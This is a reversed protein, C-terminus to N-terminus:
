GIILTGSGSSSLVVVRIYKRGRRNMLLAMFSNKEIQKWSFRLLGLLVPSDLLDEAIFCVKEFDGTNTLSKQGTFFFIHMDSLYIM